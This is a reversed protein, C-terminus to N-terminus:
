AETEKNEKYYQNSAIELTSALLTAVCLITKSVETGYPLDWTETLAVYFTAVCPLWRQIKNLINYLKDSM